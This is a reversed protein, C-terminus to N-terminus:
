RTKRRELERQIVPNYIETVEEDEFSYGEDELIENMEQQELILNEYDIGIIM